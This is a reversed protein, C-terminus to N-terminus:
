PVVFSLTNIHEAANKYAIDSKNVHTIEGVITDESLKRCAPAGNPHSYEEVM